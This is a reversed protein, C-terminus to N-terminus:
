SIEKVSLVLNWGRIPHAKIWHYSSAENLPVIVNWESILQLKMWIYSSTGNLVLILSSFAVSITFNWGSIFYLKIRLSSSIKHMYIFYYSKIQFLSTDTSLIFHYKMCSKCRSVIRIMSPIINLKLGLNSSIGYVSLCMQSRSEECRYLMILMETHFASWIAYCKSLKNLSGNTGNVYM